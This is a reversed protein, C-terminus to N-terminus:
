LLCIICEFSIDVVSDVIMFVKGIELCQYMSVNICQYMLVYELTKKYFICQFIDSM